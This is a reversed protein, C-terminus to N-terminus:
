ILILVSLKLFRELYASRERRDRVRVSQIFENVSITGTGDRDFLKFLASIEEESLSINHDVIGQQFEGESLTRSGNDDIQRFFISLNKIGASGRGLLQQRFKVVLPNENTM